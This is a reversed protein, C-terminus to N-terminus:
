PTEKTAALGPLSFFQQTFAPISFHTCVRQYADDTNQQMQHPAKQLQMLMAKELAEPNHPEVLQGTDGLVEPIGNVRTAIVPCRALMAEILVRGFAEQISSLVFTDFAKLYHFGCPVFGALIVANELHLSEIQQKLQPELVGDGLIVLLTQPHQAHVKSFATILSAHDKNIALRAINGFIYRDSPLNLAQRASERSVFTPEILDVDIVNYLTQIHDPAIGPLSKRLDDRVANSVGAFFTRPTSLATVLLRRGLASMTGLEHMVCILAPIRIFRSVWLMLYTPKYRHCIVIDYRHARTLAWLRRLAGWKLGRLGRKPTELFLVHEALTRSRTAETPRGTLYAVTVEYRAPDFLRTYQNFIDIFQTADNHGLILVPSRM